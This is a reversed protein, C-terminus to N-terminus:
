QPTNKKLGADLVRESTKTIDGFPSHGTIFFWSFFKMLSSDPCSTASYANSSTSTPIAMAIAEGVM